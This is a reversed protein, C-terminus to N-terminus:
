GAPQRQYVSSERYNFTRDVRICPTQFKKELRLWVERWVLAGVLAAAAGSFLQVFSGQPDLLALSPLFYFITERLDGRSESIAARLDLTGIIWGLVFFGVVVGPMGFNIQFEMVDGVGFSTRPSLWLGTMRSVIEPSGAFVPKQPWLIRPILALLGEWLSEGYLYQARGDRIRAVALGVFFNQNLREDLAILHAQNTADFWTFDKVIGTVSNIRASIPAGGWVEHRIEDRHQFYNVFVTLGIYLFLVVGTTVRLGSTTSVTLAAFVIVIAWSGYSLFGGLLLMVAPYVALASLWILIWKLDVRKIAARLGLLLGLMWIGSGKEIAAGVSPIRFLPSLGYIFFWGGLVCFSCFKRRDIVSYGSSSQISRRSWWVGAVFCVSAAAVFNMALETLGTNLLFGQGFIHAFAGPVHIMLLLYLYAIPLGLSLKNRRILWILWGFSCICICILPIM